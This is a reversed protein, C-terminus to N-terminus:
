ILAIISLCRGYDKERRKQSRRYSYFNKKDKYTDKNIVEVKSVGCNRLKKVVYGQLDFLFKNRKPLFLSNNKKNERIFKKKFDYSVEYSKKGICPGVCAILNKKMDKRQFKKLTKEIIGRISGKWGAHICGIMRQSKDYLIIPVCDATLVGLTIGRLNTVLSDSYFKKRKYNKINIEIVKSSHTQYMMKLSHNKLDILKLAKVINKKIKKKSDKSGIGCNLSSYIGSSFGEKRSFFCHKINKFKKLKSSIFM